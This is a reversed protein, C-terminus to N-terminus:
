DWDISLDKYYNESSYVNRFDKRHHNRECLKQCLNTDSAQASVLPPYSVIDSFKSRFKKVLELRHSRYELLLDKRLELVEPQELVKSLPVFKKGTYVLM